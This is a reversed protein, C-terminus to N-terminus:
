ATGLYIRQGKWQVYPYLRVVDVKSLKWMADFDASKIYAPLQDEYEWQVFAVHRESTPLEM